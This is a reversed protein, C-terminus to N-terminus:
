FQGQRVALDDAFFEAASRKSLNCGHWRYVAMGPPAAFIDSFGVRAAAENGASVMPGAQTHAGIQVGDMWLGCNYNAGNKEISVGLQYVQDEVLVPHPNAQVSAGCVAWRLDSLNSYIMYQVTTFGGGSSDGATLVSENAGSLDAFKVWVSAAYKEVDTALVSASPLFIRADDGTTFVLGADWELVQTGPALGFDGAIDSTVASENLDALQGGVGGPGQSPWSNPDLADFLFLTDDDIAEDLRYPISYEEPFNGAAKLNLSM